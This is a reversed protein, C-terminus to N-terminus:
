SPALFCHANINVLWTKHVAHQFGETFQDLSSPCVHQKLQTM